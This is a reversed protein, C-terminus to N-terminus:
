KASRGKADGSMKDTLRDIQKKADAVTQGLKGEIQLGRDGSINGVTEKLQGKMREVKHESM